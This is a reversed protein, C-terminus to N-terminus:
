VLSADRVEVDLPGDDVTTLIDGKEVPSMSVLLKKKRFDGNPVNNLRNLPYSYFSPGSSPRRMLLRYKKSMARKFAEHFRTSLMNYLVPNAISNLYFLIRSFCIINLYGELGLMEKEQVTSYLIWLTVVRIPIVSIMFLVLIAVLLYVAKQRHDDVSLRSESRAEESQSSRISKALRLYRTIMLCLCTLVAFPALLFILIMSVVYARKGVHNMSTRCVTVTSGDYFTASDTYSFALFPSTLTIALLWITIITRGAHRTTCMSRARIPHRIAYYRDVGIGVITLLSAHSVTNELFPM